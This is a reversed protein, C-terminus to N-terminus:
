KIFELSDQIRKTSKEKGMLAITGMLDPGKLTGTLAIRLLPFIQGPGINESTMFEKIRTEINEKDFDQLSQLIEIISLLVSQLEPKYKKSWTTKDIDKLEEFFYYGATYFESYLGVRERYLDLYKVLFSDEREINRQLFESKLVELLEDENMHLIYQQNFWKAKEFDFRAGAKSVKALDFQDILSELNMIEIDHGPNWGLFVMFNILADPNFGYERFGKLIKGGEKEEWAIPFVPMDFQAGDRKSLKGKGTPKLILPLHAFAPMSDEWGFAQYLLVHHATSSLWEEGRIVDTIEMLHDDVINAFHYTPLGDAKMLVKDDLETSDFSVEGRIKDHFSVTKGPDVKLRITFNEGAAIRKETEEKSLTLSNILTTRASADYKFNPNADRQRELAEISDFAYYAKGEDLLTKIYKAYIDKRESQRYPGYNGGQKPGEDIDLGLWEMSEYIYNEANEVYRTQDTDEIRLIFTGGHKKAVLYNFLATRIGGIHLAGTPSPAFRVRTM